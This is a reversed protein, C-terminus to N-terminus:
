PSRRQRAPDILQPRRIAEATTAGLASSWSQAPQPARIPSCAWPSPESASTNPAPPAYHECPPPTAAARPRSTAASDSCTRGPPSASLNSSPSSASASANPSSDAPTTASRCPPSSTPPLSAATSPAPANPPKPPTSPSTGCRRHHRHAPRRAHDPRIDHKQGWALRRAPLSAAAPTTVTVAPIAHTIAATLLATTAWAPPSATPGDPGDLRIIAHFHVVGRRQYEAVKAYSIRLQQRLAKGTLGAQRALARHLAITFRRWLEPACANFLVTGTYDYCDPCLPEGLQPDHPDHRKPCATTRGHQCVNHKRRPRCALVRGNRERTTHVVGFAPATLTLFVAPHDAVTAPVGKGGALGARILQYTDAKYTEACPLCRTARRTKCAVPLVGGPEHATTYRHICNAPPATSTIPGAASCSPISAAARM